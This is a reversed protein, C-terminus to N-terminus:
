YSRDYGPSRLNSSAHSSPSLFKKSSEFSMHVFCTIIHPHGVNRDGFEATKPRSLRNAKRPVNYM